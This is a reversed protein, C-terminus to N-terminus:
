CQGVAAAVPWKLGADVVKEGNMWHELHDGRVVLRAHNFESMPKTADRSLARVDYLAGAQHIAGGRFADPNM